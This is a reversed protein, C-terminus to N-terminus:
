GRFVSKTAFQPYKAYVTKLLDQFSVSKVWTVLADLHQAALNPVRNSVEKASEIGTTTISYKKWNQGSAPTIAILGETALDTADAYISSDFPGYNYPAFNYFEDGVEKPMQQGLLFLSKQLQVPSLTRGRAAAIALLTWYKRAIGAMAIRENKALGNAKAFLNWFLGLWSTLLGGIFRLTAIRM